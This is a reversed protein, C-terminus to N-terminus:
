KVGLSADYDSSARGLNAAVGDVSHLGCGISGREVLAVWVHRESQRAM